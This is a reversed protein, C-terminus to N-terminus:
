EPYRTIHFPYDEERDFLTTRVKDGQVRCRVGLYVLDQPDSSAKTYAMGYAEEPPPTM